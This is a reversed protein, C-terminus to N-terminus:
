IVQLTFGSVNNLRIQGNITQETSSNKNIYNELLSNVKDNSILKNTDNDITEINNIEKNNLVITGKFKNNVNDFNYTNMLTEGSKLVYRDDLDVNTIYRNECYKLTPLKINNDDTEHKELTINDGNLTMNTTTLAGTTISEALEEKTEYKNDSEQKTYYNDLESENIYRNDAEQKTYYNNLDDQDIYRNDAEEKTYYNNLTPKQVFKKDTQIKNYYDDLEIGSHTIIINNIQSKNYYKNNVYQTHKAMTDDVYKMLETKVDTNNKNFTNVDKRLSYTKGQLDKIPVFNGNTNNNINEM